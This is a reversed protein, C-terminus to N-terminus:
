IKARLHALAKDIGKIPFNFNVQNGNIAQVTVQATSAAGMDRLLNNDIVQTATCQGTDCTEFALTREAAKELRLKAGAAITVGTPTQLVTVLQKNDNIFVVWTLIVQNSGSQQVQL